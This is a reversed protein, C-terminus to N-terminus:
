DGSFFDTFRTALQKRDIKGNANRPLPEHQIAIHGPLMFAPLHPRLADLLGEMTLGDERPLVVLVIGHGLTPHPVGLAAAEAVRGSAYAVEEVENPSVRYGSTKIMEDRRGIFYLFGDEDTRVTDGSWVALEPVPIASAQGPAPRFREATREPDNWYGLSVLAGRHVLEGPEGAACPTGDERVVMVEANPIAKGMSDPRRDLEGPPLYTSRFAETLGYMLYFRTSPLQQRLADLVKRPMAGGSNTVYRLTERTQGPWELQALQNWLPPVAALGTIGEKAVAKIVDRPLLYNLLAVSAGVSFATTLQSLGYDFSLPLVALLRDAARNELYSAVSEAGAVMNRHSLVVGKPRGTSGSTYLIAAMDTDITRHLGPSEVDQIEHWGVQQYHDPSEGAEAEGVVLVTHLDPCHALSEQLAALREPSTVLIRVNCDQLIYAVQEAKLLPNVPVFVGGALSAGFLAHITEPRKDLYVAVREQRLLGAQLLGAAANQVAEALQVYNQYEGRYGLAPADPSQNARIIIPDHLLTPM